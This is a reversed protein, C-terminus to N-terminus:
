IEEDCKKCIRVKESKTMKYGVRTIKKCKPCILAVKSAPMPKNIEVISGKQGAGRPKLHRKYINVGAVVIKGEKLFVKEVAGEKGHDKGAMIKVKDGKKLKM